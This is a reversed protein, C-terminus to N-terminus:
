FAFPAPRNGGGELFFFLFLGKEEEKSTMRGLEGSEAKVGGTVGGTLGVVDGEFPGYLELDNLLEGFVDEPPPDEPCAAGAEGAGYAASNRTYARCM